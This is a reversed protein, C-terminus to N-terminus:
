LLAGALHFHCLSYTAGKQQHDFMSQAGLTLGMKKLDSKLDEGESTMAPVSTSSLGVTRRAEGM